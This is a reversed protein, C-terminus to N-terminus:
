LSREAEEVLTTVGECGAAPGGSLFRTSYKLLHQCKIRVSNAETSYVFLITARGRELWSWCRNFSSGWTTHILTLISLWACKRYCSWEFTTFLYWKRSIRLRSSQRMQSSIGRPSCLLGLGNTIIDNIQTRHDIDKVLLAILSAYKQVDDSRATSDLEAYERSNSRLLGPHCKGLLCGAISRNAQLDCETTWFQHSLEKPSSIM